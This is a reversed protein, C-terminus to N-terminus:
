AAVMEQLQESTAYDELTLKRKPKKALGSVRARRVIALAVAADIHMDNAQKVFRWRDSGVGIAAAGANQVHTTLAKDDPHLIDGSRIAEALAMSSQAMPSPDQSHEVIAIGLEDGIAAAITHGEANPDFVISEIPNRAHITRIAALITEPKTDTGNGPAPIITPVGVIEREGHKNDPLYTFPVLATTDRRWGLDMGLWTPEGELLGLGGGCRAWAAPDIVGGESVGWLGCRFRKWQWTMMSPSHFRQKLSKASHIHLPNVLKVLEFDQYDDEDELAWEHYAFTGDDNVAYLHRDKYVKNAMARGRKRLEGLPSDEGQGATSLSILKGKRADLGDRILGYIEASKHRHYEDVIGLTPTQGDATKPDNPIVRISGPRQKHDVFIVRRYGGQPKVVGKLFDNRLILGEAYLYIRAAQDKSAAAIIVDPEDVEYIMHHLALLAMAVSKGNKKPLIVATEIVGAFYPAFLERQFQFLKGRRGDDLKCRGVFWEFHELSHVNEPERLYLLAGVKHPAPLPVPLKRAEPQPFTSTIM